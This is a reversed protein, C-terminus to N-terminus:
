RMSKKKAMDAIDPLAIQEPQPPAPRRKVDRLQARLKKTTSFHIGQVRSLAITVFWIYHQPNLAANSGPHHAGANIADITLADMMTEIRHLNAVELVKATIHPPPPHPANLPQGRDDRGFKAFYGHLIRRLKTLDEPDHDEPKSSYVRDILRM